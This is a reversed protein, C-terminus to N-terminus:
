FTFTFAERPADLAEAAKEMLAGMEMVDSCHPLVLKFAEAEVGHMTVMELAADVPPVVTDRELLRVEANVTGTETSTGAPVVLAVNV